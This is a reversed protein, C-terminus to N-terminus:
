RIGRGQEREQKHEYHRSVDQAEHETIQQNGDMLDSKALITNALKNLPLAGTQYAAVANQPLTVVRPINDIDMVIINGEIRPNKIRSNLMEDEYRKFQVGQLQGNQTNQRYESMGEQGVKNLLNAGGWLMLPIKLMPNKIFTGSFLAVLPLMTEKNLGISKTKGTFLGILMDPLMALTVGLHNATDGIGELGISGLLNNWGGYDAKDQKNPSTAMDSSQNTPVFPEESAEAIAPNKIHEQRLKQEQKISNSFLEYQRASVTADAVSKISGGFKITREGNEVAKAIANRQTKGNDDAWKRAISLQKDTANDLRSFGMQSYMWSPVIVARKNASAVDQRAKKRQEQRYKDEHGRAGLDNAEVAVDMATQGILGGFGATTAANSAWALVNGAVDELLSPNHKRDGEKNIYDQMATTRTRNPINFISGEAAKRLIYEATSKPMQQKILHDIIHKEMVADVKINNKQLQVKVMNIYDDVTKDNWGKMYHLTDDHAYMSAMGGDPGIGGALIAGLGQSHKRYEDAQRQQLDQRVKDMIPIVKQVFIDQSSTRNEAM